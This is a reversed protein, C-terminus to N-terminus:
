FAVVVCHDGEFYWGVGVVSDSANVFVASAAVCLNVGSFDHLYNFLVLVFIGDKYEDSRIVLM